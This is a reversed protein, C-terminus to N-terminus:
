EKKSSSYIIRLNVNPVIGLASQSVQEIEGDVVQFYSNVENKRNTLNWVALGCKGRLSDSIRFSYRASFDLRFYQDLTSTNPIDYIIEENAQDYGLNNTFPRGTRFNVGSSLEIDQLQYSAGLSLTHTIDFNNRFGPPILDPFSYDSNLYTYTLWTNLPEFKPNALFEVGYAEYSGASRIFQFQNLFGQSSTVIGDVQKRFGELTMLLWQKQYNVGLSVQGSTVLPIDDQNVLEWKRKEVGLFDTQFDVVQVTTQSKAEAMLEASFHKGLERLLSLRPELRFRNFKEFYNGRFGLTVHTGAFPQSNGEVFLGTSRLVEKSLSRFDPKNIERYNRIGTEQFQIGGSLNLYDNLYYIGTAKITTEDVENELVHQQAQLVDFNISEQKFNSASGLLQTKFRDNWLKEYTLYGLLSHQDLRSVRSVRISDIQASEQYQISNDINLLGVKLQDSPSFDHHVKVALDYFQFREDSNTVQSTNQDNVVDTGRFARDFYQDYTPSSVIGNLSQRSAVLVSSKNGIPAEILMDSNLLNGGAEASLNNARGSKTEVKITGSVGEGLAAPTGNKILSANHVIHPNMASILGFFHGTQYMRVGDWLVVSQDNAGGRINIDTVTENISQIGPLTQLTFLVDPETLGPLIDMNRVDVDVSGSVKKDIGRTVYNQIVIEDLDIETASLYISSCESGLGGPTLLVTGYNLHRAYVPESPAIVNLEFYGRADTTTTREGSFVLVDAIPNQSESDLLYGCKKGAPSPVRVSIYGDQLTLFTLGTEEVLYSLTRQLNLAPDPPNVMLHDVDQDM